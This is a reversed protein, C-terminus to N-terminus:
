IKGYITWGELQSIPLLIAHNQNKMDLICFLSSLSSHEVILSPNFLFILHCFQMCHSCAHPMKLYIDVLISYSKQLVASGESWCIDINKEWFFVYIIRHTPPETSYSFALCTELQCYCNNIGAILPWTLLRTVKREREKARLYFFLQARRCVCVSQQRSEASASLQVSSHPLFSSGKRM